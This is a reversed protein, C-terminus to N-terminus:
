LPASGGYQDPVRAAGVASIGPTAQRKRIREAVADESRHFSIVPESRGEPSSEPQVMTTRSRFLVLPVRENSDRSWFAATLTLAVAAAAALPAGLRFILTHVPSRRRTAGIRTMVSDTFGPGDIEVRQDGWRRLWDDIRHLDEEEDLAAVRAQVTATYPGWDLEVPGAGWRKVLRDVARLEDAWARLAESEGLAQDLRQREDSGLDQDLSRSILFALDDPNYPTESM